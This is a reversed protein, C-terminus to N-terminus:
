RRSAAGTPAPGSWIATAPFTASTVTPRGVASGSSRSASGTRRRSSSRRASCRTRGRVAIKMAALQPPPLLRGGLLGAYFRTLDGANSVIQGAGWGNPAVRATVDLARGRPIPVGPISRVYGHVVRGGLTTGLPYATSSLGLPRFIRSRLEDVLSRSTVAEAVLGLLVYNTNSYAWDSGPRFLPKHRVAITVLQRPQWVRGPRAIRARTYASDDTYDYLGSTHNLLERVTIEGGHPVGDVVDVRAVVAPDLFRAIPDDLGLRGQEALRLVVAATFTKTVSATRFADGSRLPRPKGRAFRGAAGHWDLRRAPDVVHVVVGPVGDKVQRAIAAQLRQVLTRQPTAAIAPSAGLVIVVLGAVVVPVKM